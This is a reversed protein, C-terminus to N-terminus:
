ILDRLILDMIFYVAGTVPLMLIFRTQKQQLRMQKELTFTPMTYWFFTVTLAKNQISFAKGNTINQMSCKLLFLYEDALLGPVYQPLVTCSSLVM